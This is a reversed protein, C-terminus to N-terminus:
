SLKNISKKKKQQPSFAVAFEDQLQFIKQMLSQLINQFYIPKQKLPKLQSSLEQNPNLNNKM